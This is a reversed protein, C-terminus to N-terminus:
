REVTVAKTPQVDILESLSVKRRQRYHGLVLQHHVEIIDYGVGGQREVQDVGVRLLQIM